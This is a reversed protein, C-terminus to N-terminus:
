GLPYFSPPSISTPNNLAPASGQGQTTSHFPFEAPMLCPKVQLCLICVLGASEWFILTKSLPGPARIHEEPKHARNSRM